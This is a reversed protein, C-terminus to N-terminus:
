FELNLFTMLKLEKEESLKREGQLYLGITTDSVEIVRALKSQKIGMDKVHDRVIEWIYKIEPNMAVFNVTLLYVEFINILNIQQLM